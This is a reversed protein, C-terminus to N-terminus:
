VEKTTTTSTTTDEALQKRLSDIDSAQSTVLKQLNAIQSAQGMVMKQVDSPTSTDDVTVERADFDEVSLGTWDSGNWTYPQVINGPKVLTANAPVDAEGTVEVYGNFVKTTTDFTMALM